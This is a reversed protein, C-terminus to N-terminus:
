SNVYIQNKIYHILGKEFLKGRQMYYSKNSLSKESINIYEYM